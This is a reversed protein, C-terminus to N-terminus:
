FDELKFKPMEVMWRVSKVKDDDELKEYYKQFVDNFLRSTEPTLLSQDIRYFGFVALAIFAKKKNDVQIRDKKKIDDKRKDKGLSSKIQWPVKELLVSNPLNQPTVSKSYEDVKYNIFDDVSEYLLGNHAWLRSVTGDDETLDSFISSMEEFALGCCRAVFLQYQNMQERKENTAKQMIRELAKRAIEQDNTGRLDRVLASVEEYNNTYFVFKGQHNTNDPAVCISRDEIKSVIPDDHKRNFKDILDALRKPFANIQDTVSTELGSRDLFWLQSMATEAVGSLQLIRCESESPAESPEPNPTPAYADIEGALNKLIVEIEDAVQKAVPEPEAEPENEADPDIEPDTEAFLDSRFKACKDRLKFAADMKETPVRVLALETLRELTAAEVYRAETDETKANFFAEAYEGLVPLLEGDSAHEVANRWYYGAREHDGAKELKRAKEVASASPSETTRSSDQAKALQDVSKRLEELGSKIENIRKGLVSDGTTGSVMVAGPGVGAIQEDGLSVIGQSGWTLGTPVNDAPIEAVNEPTKPEPDKERLCLLGAFVLVAAGAFWHWAGRPLRKGPAPTGSEPITEATESSVGFATEPHTVDKATGKSETTEDTDNM